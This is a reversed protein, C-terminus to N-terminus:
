IEFKGHENLENKLEPVHAITLSESSRAGATCISSLSSTGDQKQRTNLLMQPAAPAIHAVTHKRGSHRTHNPVFITRLSYDHFHQLRGFLFL